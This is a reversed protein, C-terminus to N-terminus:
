KTTLKSIRDIDPEVIATKFENYIVMGPKAGRPKKVFKIYAYDVPVKSSNRASSNCAAIVCAEEITSNPIERHGDTMIVTHSGPIKQTHFWLDYNSSDKLTLQDNQVNNKGSYIIFGDSSIYKHPLLKPQKQNTKRQNKGYGQNAIEERLAYLEVDTEARELQSIVSSIYELEYQGSEMLEKLKIEATCAKKYNSYYKQANKSPTLMIDLPIEIQPAAEDYFDVTVLKTDGKQIQYINSSIIDGYKRKIERDQSKLLEKSQILLKRAIRDKANVLLKHLDASKQRVSDAKDKRTYFLELVESYTKVPIIPYNEPYQVPAFFTFDIPKGSENQVIMPTGGEPSLATKIQQLYKDLRAYEPPSLEGVITDKEGTVYVSIDRSIMPSFGEITTLIARSLPLTNEVSIGECLDKSSTAVPNMKEQKPPLEYTIGSLIQRVESTVFDVRKIADIVKNNHNVLIINSRRGMIECVLSLEVRDGLENVAEVVIALTRDMGYQETRVLRGGTLHKRLLMCFMPATKPNEMQTTTFHLKSGSAEASIFLKHNKGGSRIGVVISERTPQSVKDIRGGIMTDIEQKIKYLYAGDFAM